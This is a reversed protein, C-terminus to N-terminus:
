KGGPKLASRIDSVIVLEGLNVVALSKTAHDYGWKPLAEIVKVWREAAADLVKETGVITLSCDTWGALAIAEEASLPLPKDAAARAARAKRYADMYEALAMSYSKGTQEQLDLAAAVNRAAENVAADLATIGTM